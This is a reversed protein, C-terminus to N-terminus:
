LNARKRRSRYGAPGADPIPNHVSAYRSRHFNIIHEVGNEEVTQLLHGFHVMDGWVFRIKDEVEPFFAFEM